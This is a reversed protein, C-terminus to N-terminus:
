FGLSEGVLIVQIRGPFRSYHQVHLMNCIKQPSLCNHCVGDKACPTNLNLRIANPPAATNHARAIASELDPAVKNMGILMIVHDPGYSLAAVRNGTGDINVLQGDLTIANASMLFYDACFAKRYFAKLDEPKVTSRDWLTVPATKLADLLGSEKISESGGWTVTAGEPILSLAKEVASKSDACYFGEMGRKHLAKLLTEAQKEYFVSLATM